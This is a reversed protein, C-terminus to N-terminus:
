KVHDLQLTPEKARQPVTVGAAAASRKKGAEQGQDQGQGADVIGQEAAKDAAAKDGDGAATSLKGAGGGPFAPTYFTRTGTGLSKAKLM